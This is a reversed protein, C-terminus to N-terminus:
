NSINKHSKNLYEQVIAQAKSATVWQIYENRKFWTRQKKALKLDLKICYEIAEQMTHRGEAYERVATYAPAKMVRNDWGYKQHLRITEDILGGRFMQETRMKIRNQLDDDAIELGIILTDDRIKDNIVTQDGAEISRILYRKNRSNEPLAINRSVLESQLEEVSADKFDERASGDKIDRFQYNYIVANIYLGSGGVLIPLKSRSSIDDIAKDASHKFDAVSFSEDISVVDLLHHRIKSQEAASPKATGINAERYVTRSDACIIEGNFQEALKFALSTKGSATQGVIVLLMNEVRTEM